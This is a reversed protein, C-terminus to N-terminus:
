ISNFHIYNGTETELYDVKLRVLHFQFQQHEVKDAYVRYVKLRVLHFQFASLYARYIQVSQSKITSFPISINEPEKPLFKESSKITSFPISIKRASVTDWLKPSKITSFPISIDQLRVQPLCRNGSKITSFPISIVSVGRQNGFGM